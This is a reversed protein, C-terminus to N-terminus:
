RPPKDRRDRGILPAESADAIRDKPFTKLLAALSLDGVALIPVNARQM